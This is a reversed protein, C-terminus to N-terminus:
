NDSSPEDDPVGTVDLDLAIALTKLNVNLHQALLVANSLSPDKLGKEWLSIAQQTVGIAVALGKQTFGARERLVKLTLRDTTEEM